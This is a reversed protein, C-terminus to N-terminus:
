RTQLVGQSEVRTRNSSCRRKTEYYGRIPTAPRSSLVLSPPSMEMDGLVQVEWGIETGIIIWAGTQQQPTMPCVCISGNWVMRDVCCVACLEVAGMVPSVNRQPAIANARLAQM